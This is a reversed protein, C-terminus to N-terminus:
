HPKLREELENKVSFGGHDAGLPVKFKM